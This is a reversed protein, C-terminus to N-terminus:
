ISNSGKNIDLDPVFNTSSGVGHDKNEHLADLEVGEGGEKVDGKEDM